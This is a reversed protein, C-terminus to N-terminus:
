LIDPRKTQADKWNNRKRKKRKVPLYHAIVYAEIWRYFEAPINVAYSQRM